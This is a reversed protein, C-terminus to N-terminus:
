NPREAEAPPAMGLEVLRALAAEDSEYRQCLDCREVRTGGILRGEKIQALIGPIGSCFAGPLECDCRQESDDDVSEDDRPDPLNADVPLELIVVNHLQDADDAADAYSKYLRSTALEDADFDYLVYRASRAPERTPAAPQGGSFDEEDFVYDEHPLDQLCTASVVVHCYGGHAEWIVRALRAAFEEETEGGALSSEGCGLLESSECSWEFPWIGQAAAKMGDLRQAEFKSVQLYVDYARSM